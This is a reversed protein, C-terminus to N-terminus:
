LMPKWNKISKIIQNLDGQVWERTRTFTALVHKEIDNYYPTLRTYEIKLDFPLGTQLSQIRSEVNKAIGVKYRNDLFEKCSLVYVYKKERGNESRGRKPPKTTFHPEPRVLDTPVEKALREKVLEYAKISVDIGIWQRELKEAAICTTACGCFPDLVVDGKNSSATIIRELLGLPKQTPYGTREKAVSSIYSIEWWDHLMKGDPHYIGMSPDHNDQYAYLDRYPIRLINHVSSRANKGYLLIADHKRPFYRKSAGGAHYCWIIENRFNKEGFICDMLLKLYHSMTQDCHLYLSGTPKLIRQMELLRIAMYVCYCYNYSNSFSKIGILLSYLEDYDQEITRVWEDKVDEERFIDKFEAGEASSGVPATFTKNKNFPPDLYMLDICEDNMGM